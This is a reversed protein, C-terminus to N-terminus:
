CSSLRREVPRPALAKANEPSSSQAAAARGEEIREAKTPRCRGPWLRAPEAAALFVINTVVSLALLMALAAILSNRNNVYGAM